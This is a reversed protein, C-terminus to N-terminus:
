NIKIKRGIFRCLSSILDDLSNCKIFSGSKFISYNISNNKLIYFHNSNQWDDFYESLEDFIDDFLIKKLNENKDFLKFILNLPLFRLTLNITKLNQLNLIFDYNLENKVLERIKLLTLTQFRLLSDCFKQTLNCKRLTLEELTECNKSELFSALSNLDDIGDVILCKIISFNSAISQHNFYKVFLDYHIEIPLQIPRIFRSFNNRIKRYDDDEYLKLYYCYGEYRRKLNLEILADQFGNVFIDLKPNKQAKLDEIIELNSGYYEIIKLKPLERLDFRSKIESCILHELNPFKLNLLNFLQCKLFKVCDKFHFIHNHDDSFYRTIISANTLKPTNLELKEYGNNILTFTKLEQLNLILEDTSRFHSFRGIPRTFDYYKDDFYVITLEVLKTLNLLLSNLKKFKYVYLCKLNMLITKNLNLECREENSFKIKIKDQDNIYEENSSWKLNIPKEDEYICLNRHTNLLDCWCKVSKSVLRLKLKEEVNLFSFVKLLILPNNM